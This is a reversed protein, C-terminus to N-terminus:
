HHRMPRADHKANMGASAPYPNVHIPPGAEKSGPQLSPNSKMAALLEQTEEGETLKHAPQQPHQTCSALAAFAVPLCLLRVVTGAFDRRSM